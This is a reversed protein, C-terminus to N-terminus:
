IEQRGLFFSMYGTRRPHPSSIWGRRPRWSGLQEHAKQMSVRAGLRAALLGGEARGSTHSIDGRRANPIKFDGLLNLILLKSLQSAINM